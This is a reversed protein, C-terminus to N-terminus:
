QLASNQSIIGSLGEKLSRLAKTIITFFFVRKILGQIRKLVKGASEFAKPLQATTQTTNSM